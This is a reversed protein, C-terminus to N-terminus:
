RLDVLRCAPRSPPRERECRGLAQQEADERTPQRSVLSWTTQGPGTPSWAVARHEPMQRAQAVAGLFYWSPDSDRLEDPVPVLSALPPVDRYADAQPLGAVARAAGQGLAEAFGRLREAFARRQASAALGEATWESGQTERFGTIGGPLQVAQDLYQGTRRWAVARIVFLPPQGARHVPYTVVCTKVEQSLDQRAYMVTERCLPHDGSMNDLRSLLSGRANMWVVDESHHRGKLRLTGFPVAASTISMRMAGEEFIWEGLGPYLAMGGVTPAAPLKQGQSLPALQRDPFLEEAGAGTWLAALLAAGWIREHM